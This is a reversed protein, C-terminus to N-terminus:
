RGARDDKPSACLRRGRGPRTRRPPQLESGTPRLTKRGAAVPTPGHDRRGPRSRRRGPTGDVIGLWPSLPGAACSEDDPWSQAGSKTATHIERAVGRHLGLRRPSLRILGTAGGFPAVALVDTNERCTPWKRPPCHHEDPELQAVSKTATFRLQAGKPTGPARSSFLSDTSPAGGLLPSQSDTLTEGAFRAKRRTRLSSGDPEL